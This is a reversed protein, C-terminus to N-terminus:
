KSPRGDIPPYVM